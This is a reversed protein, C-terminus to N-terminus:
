FHGALLLGLYIGLAIYALYGLASTVMASVLVDGLRWDSRAETTRWCGILAAVPVFPLFVQGVLTKRLVLSGNKIRNRYTNNHM